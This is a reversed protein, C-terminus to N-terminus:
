GRTITGPSIVATMNPNIVAKPAQPKRRNYLYYGVVAALAIGGILLGTNKKKM